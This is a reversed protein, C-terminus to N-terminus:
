EGTMVNITRSATEASGSVIQLYKVGEFAARNLSVYRSPAVTVSYLTSEYYLAIPTGSSATAAKFTITTGTFAAPLELAVPIRGPEMTITASDTGANPITAVVVYQNKVM